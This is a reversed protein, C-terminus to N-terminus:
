RARGARSRVRAPQARVRAGSASPVPLRARPQNPLALAARACVRDVSAAPPSPRRRSAIPSPPLRRSAVPPSPPLRRDGAQPVAHRGVSDDRSSVGDGSALLGRRAQTGQTWPLSLPRPALLGAPDSPRCPAARPARDRELPCPRPLASAPERNKSTTCSASSV